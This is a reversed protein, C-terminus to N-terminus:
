QKCNNADFLTYGLGPFSVCRHTKGNFNIIQTRNLALVAESEPTVNNEDDLDPCGNRYTVLNYECENEQLYRINM